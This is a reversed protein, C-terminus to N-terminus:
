PVKDASARVVQEYGFIEQQVDGELCGKDSGM